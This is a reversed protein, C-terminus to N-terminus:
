DSSSCPGGDGADFEKKMTLSGRNRGVVEFGLREYLHVAPNDSSVSLSLGRHQLRVDEILHSLLDTGIGQARYEPLVAMSLEPTEDDVYGYGRNEATFMRVWAAGVPLSTLADVAIFGADGEKGWHRVYKAIDPEWVIEKPFPAHGEPVHLAAYLMEWLFQEDAQALRRIVYLSMIKEQLVRDLIGSPSEFPAPTQRNRPRIVGM